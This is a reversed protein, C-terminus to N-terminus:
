AEVGVLGLIQLKEQIADPTFPKIVYEDAGIELGLVRDLEESKATLMLIPIDKDVRRVRRVAEIGNMGPMGIDLLVADFHVTRVLALAQEGTEAEAIEFDM